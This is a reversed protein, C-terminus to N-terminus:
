PGEGGVWDAFWKVTEAVRRIGPDSRGIRLDPRLARDEPTMKGSARAQVYGRIRPSSRVYNAASTFRPMTRYLVVPRPTPFSTSLVLQAKDRKSAPRFEVDTSTLDRRRLATMTYESELLVVDGRRVTEGYDRACKDWLVVECGVETHGAESPAIVDWKAIWLTGEQGKAREEKRRRLVPATTSTICVIVHVKADLSGSANGRHGDLLKGLTSLKSLPITWRPLNYMSTDGNGDQGSPPVQSPNSMTTNLSLISDDAQLEPLAAM